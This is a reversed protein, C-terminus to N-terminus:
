QHFLKISVAVLGTATVFGAAVSTWVLRRNRLDARSLIRPVAGIPTMEMVELLDDLGRVTPDSADAIIAAGVAIVSGLMLGLLLIGIRNPTYPRPPVITEKIVAFREGGNQAELSKALAAAKIKNQLDNYSNQANDYDRQLQTYEREVNPAVVLNQQFTRLDAQARAANARLDVLQRKVTNVQSQLRLYDPNDPKVAPAKGGAGGNAALLDEIAHRLRKVDPHQPTYKQQADALDARAKALQTRWDGVAAVLSPPTDDLQLQYSTQQQEATIIQQQLGELERQARDAGTLNRNEATPLAEGYKAKFQALGHEMTQMSQELGHAQQQLFQLAQTAQRTRSEQNFALFLAVLKRSVEGAMKVSPNLYHISFAPSKDSTQLTIPDVPEIMTDMSVQLAKTAADAQMQPYPDIEKILSVLREPALIKRRLLELQESAHERFDADQVVTSQVMTQPLSAPELMITASARYEVPLIFAVLVALLLVSPIILVLYAWRRRFLRTYHGMSKGAAVPPAADREDPMM